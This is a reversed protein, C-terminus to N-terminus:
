KNVRKLWMAHGGGSALPATVTDGPQVIKETVRYSERNATYSADVGDSYITARYRGESLFDLPIGLERSKKDTLSAVFWENGSRRAVTVSRGIRANMVRTEDWTMPMAAIFRFLDIKERYAEPTDALCLFPTYIALCQAVQGMVTSKIEVRVKDREIATNLDFMGPTRDVPGALGQLFPISCVYGPSSAPLSGDVLSHVYERTMYNPYTRSYGTPKIPEHCDYMLKYEAAKRLVRHSFEVGDQSFTNLFGQKIGKAGWERCQSLVKDLRDGRLANSHIYLWLGVANREAYKGLKPIDIADITTLPDAHRQPGYWGADVMAYEVGNEAAFDIFRKMTETGLRYTFDGERAGRARWDWVCQGPQIWSPSEIANPQNLNRLLGSEILGGARSALQITRWPSCHPTEAVVPSTLLVRFITEGESGNRKLRMPAYARLGAEHFSMYCDPSVKMTLPTNIKQLKGAPQPANSERIGWRGSVWWSDYNGALRLETREGELRLKGNGRPWAYRFALGDNYCRFVVQLTHDKPASRPHLVIALENYHNRRRSFQGWTPQWTRDITERSTEVIRYHDTSVRNKRVEGLRSPKVLTRGKWSLEYHPIGEKLTVRLQVKGDPSEAKHMKAAWVCSYGGCLLVLSLTVASIPRM